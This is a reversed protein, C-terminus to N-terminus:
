KASMVATQHDLELRVVWPKNNHNEEGHNIVAANVLVTRGDEGVWLERSDRSVPGLEM